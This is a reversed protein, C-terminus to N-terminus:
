NTTIKWSEEGEVLDAGDIIEGTEKVHDLIAKKDPSIKETRRIYKEPIKSEDTIEISLRPAIRKITGNILRV